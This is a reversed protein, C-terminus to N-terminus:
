QIVHMGERPTASLLRGDQPATQADISVASIM